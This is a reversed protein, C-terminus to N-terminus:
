RLLGAHLRLAHDVRLHDQLQSLQLQHLGLVILLQPVFLPLGPLQLERQKPLVPEPVLLIFRKVPPEAPLERVCVRQHLQRLKPQLCRVALQRRRLLGLLM